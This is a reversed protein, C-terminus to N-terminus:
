SYVAIKSVERYQSSLLEITLDKSGHFIGGVMAWYRESRRAETHRVGPLSKKGITFLRFWTFTNNSTITQDGALGDQIPRQAEQKIRAHTKAEMETGPHRSDRATAM